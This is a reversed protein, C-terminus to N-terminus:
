VAIEGSMLRPLLLDRAQSLKKNMTHLARVSSHIISTQEEFERLISSDPMVVPLVRFKGKSIEKYTAGGAHSRIEEVRHMLNYLLYMRARGDHPIVSIFGQNTCSITDIVGFFGVSARSTMLVTGPPLIKASSNRLGAETIKTESDLLALCPNRTIDTPTYWAIDGDSWYEPRDTKPTGGGITQCVNDFSTLEWGEPLGDIIKLHEHGPFRFHVFWERYLMRAAEELLAIRRRNNEILDDYASIIDAIKRQEIVDPVRVKIAYIRKPATHRVKGGTASACIEGRVFPTNFLHYLFRKDLRRENLQEVLGLRQNHLYVGDSPILASSGLLGEGQETMAIVLDNSKLIFDEPPDISYCRDKGPRSRFGGREHFNGPTLVVYQGTQAFYDGKFAYGHKIRFCEGLVLEDWSM